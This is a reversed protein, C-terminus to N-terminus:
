FWRAWRMRLRCWRARLSGHRQALHIALRTLIRHYTMATGRVALAHERLLLAFQDCARNSHQQMAASYCTALFSDFEDLDQAGAAGRSENAEEYRRDTALIMARYLHVRASAIGKDALHTCVALIDKWADRAVLAVIRNELMWSEAAPRERWDDTLRDLLQLAGANALAFSAKGWAWTDHKFREGYREVLKPVLKSENHGLRNFLGAFFPGCDFDGSAIQDAARTIQRMSRGAVIDSGYWALAEPGLEGAQALEEAQSRYARKERVADLESAIRNIAEYAAERHRLLALFSDLAAARDGTAIQTRAIREFKWPNDSHEALADCAARAEDIDGAALAMDIVQAAAYEYTPDLKHAIRMAERADDTREVTLLCEAYSGHARANAPALQVLRRGCELAAAHDQQGLHLDRLAALADLDHPEDAILQRLATIAAATNGRSEEIKAMRRAIRPPLRGDQEAARCLEIAAFHDGQETLIWAAMDRAEHASPVAALASRCASLAEALDPEGIGLSVRAHQIWADPDGPHLQTQRRAEAIAAEGDLSALRDWAWEYNPDLTIAHRYHSAAAATDGEDEAAKGLFGYNVAERPTLRLAHELLERSRQRDGRHYLEDALERIAYTWGPSREVARELAALQGEADGNAACTRALEIEMRPIWWFHKAAAEAVRHASAADDLALHQSILAIELELLEEPLERRLQELEQLVETPKMAQSIQQHWTAIAAGGFQSLIQERVFSCAELQEAHNHCLAFLQPLAWTNAINIRLTAKLAERAEAVQGRHQALDIRLNWSPGSADDIALARENYRLAEDLHGRRLHNWALERLALANRPHHEVLAALLEAAGEPDRDRMWAAALEHLEIHYPNAACAARLHEIAHESGHEDALLRTLDRHLDISLRERALASTIESIAQQREARREAVDARIRALVGAPAREALQELWGDILHEEETWLRDRIAFVLVESNAPFRELLEDLLERAERHRDLQQLAYHLTTGADPQRHGLRRYRAQLFTLATDRQGATCAADFYLRSAGENYEDATAAARLLLLAHDRRGDRQEIQALARMAAPDQGLQRLTRWLLGHCRDREAPDEVLECAFDRLVFPSADADETRAALTAIWEQQPLLHRQLFLSSRQYTSADPFRTLMAEIAALRAELDGDYAAVALEGHRTVVHEPDTRQLARLLEGADERRYEELACNLQHLLDWLGTDPLNLNEIRAAETRPLLLMGRPGYAQQSELLGDTFAEGTLASGPDRLILTGRFADYGCVAQLHGSESGRTTLTFPVGRDILQRAIEGTVTFERAIFDHEEAWNREKFAPTGDYCIAEVVEMHEVSLGWHNAIATLTAPVCTFHDQRIYPLPIVRRPADLEAAHMHRAVKAFFSDGEPDAHARAEARRNTLCYLECENGTLSQKVPGHALPLLERSRTLVPEMEAHRQLDHLIRARHLQVLGAQMRADAEAAYSLAEEHRDQVTLLHMRMEVAPRYWPRKELAQDVAAAASAIDDALEHFRAREILIWPDHPAREEARALWRDAESFDRVFANCTAHLAFWHAQDNPDDTHLRADQELIFYWAAVTGRYSLLNYVQFTALRLDDPRLRYARQHCFTGLERNGLNNALRGCLLLVEPNRQAAWPKLPALVNYADLYRAEDYACQAAALDM